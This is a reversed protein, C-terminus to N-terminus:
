YVSSSFRRHTEKKVFRPATYEACKAKMRPMEYTVALNLILKQLEQECIRLGSDEAILELCLDAPLTEEYTDTNELCGVDGLCPECGVNDTYSKELFFSNRESTKSHQEPNL